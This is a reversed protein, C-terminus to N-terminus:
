LTCRYVTVPGRLSPATDIAKWGRREVIRNASDTSMFLEAYGLRRAEVEVAAVLASGVGRGRAFPAVLLARGWPTCQPHSISSAGLSITGLLADGELAVLCLPLEDRRMSASLDEEADGPGSKGYYPEWEARFWQALTPLLEPCTLLYEVHLTM